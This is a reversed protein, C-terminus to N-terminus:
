LHCLVINEHNPDLILADGGKRFPKDPPNKGVVVSKDKSLLLPKDM